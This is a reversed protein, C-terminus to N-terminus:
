HNGSHNLVGVVDDLAKGVAKRDDQRPVHTGLTPLVHENATCIFTRSCASTNISEKAAVDLRALKYNSQAYLQEYPSCVRAVCSGHGGAVHVSFVCERTKFVDTSPLKLFLLM